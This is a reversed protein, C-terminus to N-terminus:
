EWVTMNSDFLSRICDNNPSTAFAVRLRGAQRIKFRDIYTASSDKYSDLTLLHFKPKEFVHATANFETFAYVAVDDPSIEGLFLTATLTAEEGQLFVDGDLGTSTFKVCPWQTKLKTLWLIYGRTKEFNNQHMEMHMTNLPLYYKVTYDVVMRHTNYYSPVTKLSARVMELWDRPIGSKDRRYFTPAIDNELKNYLEMQEVYERYADDEYVEDTGISWGNESNYAEDWWGDLVSFNLAGNAGAKMGSTGSAEMPRVPTNLWIDVGSTLYRAKDIDYDEVFAIKNRFQPKRAINDIKKIIEKGETDKPHAKGAIVIQVPMTPHNLIKDLRDEDSFLLWARKYTAFRRAFGITLTKPSLVEQALVLDAIRGQERRLKVSLKDRVYSVLRERLREKAAFLEADPINDVHHWIQADHAKVQWDRGLYRNFLTQFEDATWTPLHVGNTVSGVPVFGEDLEPWLPQFLKRSVYGHLKSVGNRFISTNVALTAMALPETIDTADTRGLAMIDEVCIKDSALAPMVYTVVMTKDFVDFGAKVATHTTFLTTNKVLHHAELMNLQYTNIYNKIRELSCFAAHGENLHFVSPSIGMQSLARVGGIGLVIEQLMRTKYDGGYLQTTIKRHEPLNEKDDSDLLVLTAAGIKLSWVRIKVPTEGIVIDIKLHTGQENLVPHIPMTFFENYPVIEKQWGDSNLQQCFYGSRYLLGVATFPLGLDAASKAHDGSLVGLGGSYLQVSEHLGYEASFYAIHMKESVDKAYTQSFWKSQKMYSQYHNWTEDLRSLFVSDKELKKMEEPSLSFLLVIPNHGLQDWRAPHISQFLSIAEASSSWWLNYALVELKALTEPLNIKIFYDKIKM